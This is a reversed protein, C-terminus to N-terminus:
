LPGSCLAQHPFPGQASEGPGVHDVEPIALYGIM